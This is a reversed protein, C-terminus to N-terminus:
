IGRDKLLNKVKKKIGAKAIKPAVAYAYAWRDASAEGLVPELWQFINDYEVQQKVAAPDLAPTGDDGAVPEIDVPISSPISNYYEKMQNGFMGSIRQYLDDSRKDFHDKIHEIQGYLDRELDKFRREIDGNGNKVTEVSNRVQRYSDNVGKFMDDLRKDFHDMREAFSNMRTKFSKFGKELKVFRPNNIILAEAKRPAYYGAILFQWLIDFFLVVLAANFLM